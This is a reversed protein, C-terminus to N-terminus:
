IVRAAASSHLSHLSSPVDHVVFGAVVVAITNCVVNAAALAGNKLLHRPEGTHLFWAIPTGHVSAVAPNKLPANMEDVWGCVWGVM